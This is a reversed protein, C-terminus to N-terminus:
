YGPTQTLKPNNNMMSISIPLELTPGKGSAVTAASLYSPNIYDFVFQDGARRLDWWRKGEGIFGRLGENLIAKMNQDFSGNVYPTYNAGYARERIMNIEPSPDQGLKAKAEATLLLVYAYRYIPYDNNYIQNSGNAVGIYKTLMIGATPYPPVSRYMVRFTNEIRQDYPGVTLTDIMAQNFGVRNAGSVNPYVNAVVQSPDNNQAFTLTTASIPNVRMEGFIGNQAQNLEYNIAFIIEPNNDKKTPDFIDAYNADLHLNPGQLAEVQQLAQLATQLDAAGGGMLTGSWLYVDGKLVMTAVPNWYVRKGSPIVLDNNLSLSKAIDSKIQMMVSDKTSRGQYTAAPTSINRLPKTVLPVGGWTKLMTYYVYARLGYMEALESNIQSQSLKSKPLLDILNNIQYILNYFGAWNGAPVNLASINQDYYTAYGPDGSETYLGDVWIDSRMEGLVFFTGAYSRFDAYVGQYLTEMAGPDSLAVPLSLADQPVVDELEKKCSSMAGIFLLGAILMMISKYTRM